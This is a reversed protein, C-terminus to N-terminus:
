ERPYLTSLVSSEIASLLNKVRLYVVSIPDLLLLISVVLGLRRRVKVAFTGKQSEAMRGAEQANWKLIGTTKRLDGYVDQSAFLPAVPPGSARSVDVVVHCCLNAMTFRRHELCIRHPMSGPSM